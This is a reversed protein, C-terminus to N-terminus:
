LPSYDGKFFSQFIVVITVITVWSWTVITIREDQNANSNLTKPKKANITQNMTSGLVIDGYKKNCNIWRTNWKPFMLVNIVQKIWFCHFVEGQNTFNLKVQLVQKKNWRKISM